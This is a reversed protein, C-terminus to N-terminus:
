ERRELLKEQFRRVKLWEVITGPAPNFKAVRDVAGLEEVGHLLIPMGQDNRLHYVFNRDLDWKKHIDPKPVTSDDLGPRVERSSGRIATGKDQHQAWQEVGKKVVAFHIFDIQAIEAGIRHVHREIGVGKQEVEVLSIGIGGTAAANQAEVGIKSIEVPCERLMAENTLECAPNRGTEETSSELVYGRETM